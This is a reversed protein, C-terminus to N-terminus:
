FLDLFQQFKKYNNPTIPHSFYLSIYQMLTSSLLHELEPNKLPTTIKKIIRAIKAFANFNILV